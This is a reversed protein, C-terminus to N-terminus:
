LAALTPPTNTMSENKIHVQYNLHTPIKHSVKGLIDERVIVAGLQIEHAFSQVLAELEVVGVHAVFAAAALREVDSGGRCGWASVSM